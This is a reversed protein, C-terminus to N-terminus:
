EVIVVERCIISAIPQEFVEFSDRNAATTPAGDARRGLRRPYTDVSEAWALPVGDYAPAFEGGYTEPLAHSQVYRVMGTFEAAVLPGHIDRWHHAFQEYTLGRKMHLLGAYKIFSERERAAPYADLIPVETTLLWKGRDQMFNPVDAVAAAWEPSRFANVFADMDDFWAESMGDFAQQYEPGLDNCLHSQVYRRLGPAKAILPGHVDRWHADFAEFPMGEKRTILAIFKIM